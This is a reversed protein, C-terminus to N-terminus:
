KAGPNAAGQRAAILFERDLAQILVVFSNITELKNLVKAMKYTFKLIANIEGQM